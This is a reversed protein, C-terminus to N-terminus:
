LAIWVVAALLALTALMPIPWLYVAAASLIVFVVVFAVIGLPWAVATVVRTPWPDRMVILGIVVGLVYVALVATAM